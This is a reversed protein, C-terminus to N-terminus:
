LISRQKKLPVRKEVNKQHTVSKNGWRFCREDDKLADVSSAFGTDEFVSDEGIWSFQPFARTHFRSNFTFSRRKVSSNQHAHVARRMSSLRKFAETANINEMTQDWNATSRDVAGRPVRIDTNSTLSRTVTFERAGHYRDRTREREGWPILGAQRQNRVWRDADGAHVTDGTDNLVSKEICSLAKLKEIM